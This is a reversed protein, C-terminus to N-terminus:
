VTTCVASSSEVLSIPTISPPSRFSCRSADGVPPPVHRLITGLLPRMNSGDAGAHRAQRLWRSRRRLPLFDCRRREPLVLEIFLDLVKDVTFGTLEHVTAPNKNVDIIPRLGQELAKLLLPTEPMPEENADVILLCNDVMGLVHEVEGGFWAGPHRCHADADNYTVATSKSLHHVVRERELDNSDMVCTPVAENDRFIGQILWCHTSWPPRAM